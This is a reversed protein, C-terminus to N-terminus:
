DLLNFDIFFNRMMSESCPKPLVINAGSEQIKTKSFGDEFATVSAIVINKIKKAKELKRIISIAESGNIYEMNEDTIVCKIENEKTQDKILNSLIDVGDCGEIVDFKNARDFNKLVKKILLVLSERILKHDDIILIKNKRKNILSSNKSFNKNLEYKSELSEYYKSFPFISENFLNNIPNNDFHNQNGNFFNPIRKQREFINTFALKQLNSKKVNNVSYRNNVSFERIYNKFINNSIVSEKYINKTLITEKNKDNSIMTGKKKMSENKISNKNEEKDLFNIDKRDSINEINKYLELYDDKTKSLFNEMKDFNSSKTEQKGSSEIKEELAEM